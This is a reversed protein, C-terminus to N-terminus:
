VAVVADPQVFVAVADRGGVAVAMGGIVPIVGGAAQTQDDVGFAAGGFVPIVFHAVQPEENVGIFVHGIVPVVAFVQEGLADVRQAVM